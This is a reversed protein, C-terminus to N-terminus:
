CIGGQSFSFWRWFFSVIGSTQLIKKCFPHRQLFIRDLVYPRTLAEQSLGGSIVRCSSFYAAWSWMWPWYTDERGARRTRCFGCGFVCNRQWRQGVWGEITNWLYGVERPAEQSPDVHTILPREIMRDKPTVELMNLISVKKGKWKQQPKEANRMWLCNSSMVQRRGSSGKSFFGFRSLKWALSVHRFTGKSTIFFKPVEFFAM